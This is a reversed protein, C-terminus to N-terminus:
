NEKDKTNSSQGPALATVRHFVPKPQYDRGFLLPYDTRGPMPWDNKWNHGDDVGWFTVRSVHERNDLLIRFLEEYRLAQAEEVDAPLGDAYPNYHAKLELRLNVDAGWESQPPFPIVSIDLETIYVELGMDGFGRIAADFEKMDQPNDLGYHGQMGVGHVALGKERLGEILARAGAAKEPKFMNFDNYYLKAGPDAAHAFEFAKEIYDAGIIRFWPSERLSGDENLAENLVEWSRVRGKYRGALAKIHNEMRALLLERTAPKGEADLFVWDPVQSHWVLVHGAVEMGQEEAFEVLADAGTWDFQGELPEIVEWKMDNEATVTNFQQQVLQLGQPDGGTVHKRSLAAGVLFDDAFVESLSAEDNGAWAPQLATLLLAVVATNIRSTSM